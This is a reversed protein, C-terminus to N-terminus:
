FASDDAFSRARDRSPQPTQEYAQRAAATAADGFKYQKEKEKFEIINSYATTGDEKKFDRAPLGVWWRADDGKRHLTCGKLIMGSPLELDFFGLLTNKTFHKFNTAIMKQNGETPLPTM